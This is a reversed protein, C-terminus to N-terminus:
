STKPLCEELIMFDMSVLCLYMEIAWSYRDRRDFPYELASALLRGESIYPKSEDVIVRMLLSYLM